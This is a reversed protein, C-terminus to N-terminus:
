LTENQREGKVTLNIMATSTEAVIEREGTWVKTSARPIKILSKSCVKTLM